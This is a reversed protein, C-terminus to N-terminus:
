YLFTASIHFRNSGAEVQGPISTLAIGWDVRFNFNQKYQLEIGVGTGVLTNNHEFVTPDSNVVDAVDVFVRSILDWDPRGYTQSPAFRFSKDWLFPTKTPDSQIPLIRPLHFRYEGTAIVVSDGAVVSEPYGRVTYFGGAVDESQPFLRDSFAYQGRVSLFVEHALTSHGSAFGEPDLLPELYASQSFDFQLVLPHKSAGTRGLGELDTTSADTNYSVLTLSGLTSALDTSRSLRVGGYPVLFDASGKVGSTQNSTSVSQYRFGAVVDIFLERHQFINYALEDGVTWEDGTFQEQNQGVDSATFENYTAFVKNRLRDINFVPLEYSAVVAHSASFGATLYDISLIDDHGTLQNNVFGLRERWPDTQKTGTNSVQAYVYWPRAESVLYDLNVEGPQDTGSIAVDVRRGPQRNLRLVYNDLVDKNLLDMRGDATGDSKLPSRERIPKHKAADVRDEGKMDGTALTRIQRVRSTVVILQLGTREAPRIDHDTTDIDKADVVVFVGIIGQENFFRVVQGYVAEIGSRYIKTVGKTGIEGLKVSVVQSGARPATYGDESVGLKVTRDLLKEIAPQNPSEKYYNIKLGTIPYARGDKSAVNTAPQSDAVTTEAPPTPLVPAPPTTSTGAAPTEAPLPALPAPPTAPTTPLNPATVAEVPKATEAPVAPSVAGSGAGVNGAPPTDTAGASVPAGTPVGGAPVVSPPAAPTAPAVTTSGAGPVAAAPVPKGSGTVNVPDVAQGRALGATLGLALLASFYGASRM